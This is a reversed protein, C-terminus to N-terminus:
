KTYTIGDLVLSRNGCPDSEIATLTLTEGEVAWRYTGTGDCISSAFFAITDGDVSISGTGSNPGRQIAYQNGSLNLSVNDLVQDGTGLNTRWVGSLEVPAADPSLTTTTTPTTTTTEVTTPTDGSPQTTARDTTGTGTGESCSVAVLLLLSLSSLALKRWVL